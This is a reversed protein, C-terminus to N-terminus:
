KVRRVFPTAPLLDWEPFAGALADNFSQGSMLGSAGSSAQRLDQTQQPSQALSDTTATDAASNLFQRSM